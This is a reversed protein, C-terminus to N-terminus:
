GTVRELADFIGDVMVSLAQKADERNAGVSSLHGQLYRDSGDQCRLLPPTAVMTKVPCWFVSVVLGPEFKQEEPCAIAELIDLRTVKM